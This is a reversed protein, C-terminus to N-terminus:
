ATSSSTSSSPTANVNAKVSEYVVMALGSVPGARVLAAALGRYAKLPNSLFGNPGSIFTRITLANRAQISTKLTDFPYLFVWTICSAITGATFVVLNGSRPSPSTISACRDDDDADCSSGKLSEPLNLKPLLPPRSAVDPLVAAADDGGGGEGKDAGDTPASTTTTAPTLCVRISEYLGLYTGAFLVDKMVHAPFGRYYGGM